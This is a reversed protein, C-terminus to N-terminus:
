INKQPDFLFVAFFYTLPTTPVAPFNWVIEQPRVYIYFTGTILAVKGEFNINM